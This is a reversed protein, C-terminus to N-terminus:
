AGFLKLNDVAPLASDEAAPVFLNKIDSYKAQTVHTLVRAMIHRIDYQPGALTLASSTDAQASLEKGKFDWQRREANGALGAKGQVKGGMVLTVGGRGHDTGTNQNERVTRGFESMVVVTVRQYEEATLRGLFAALNKGLANLNGALSGDNGNGQNFHTDFGGQDINIFSVRPENKILESAQFFSLGMSDSTFAAPVAKDVKSSLENIDKIMKRSTNISSCLGNDVVKAGVEKKCYNTEDMMYRQLKASTDESAIVRTGSLKAFTHLNQLVVPSAGRFSRPQGMGFAIYSLPSVTGPKLLAKATGLYGERQAISSSGSEILDQQVFHSRTENLSGARPIIALDGKNWIPALYQGLAKNMGFNVGSLATVAGGKVNVTPRLQKYNILDPSGEVNPPIVNLADWGGRLFVTLLVRNPAAEVAMAKVFPIQSLMLGGAGIAIHNLFERRKM